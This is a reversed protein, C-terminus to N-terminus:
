ERLCEEVTARDPGPDDDWVIVANGKRYRNEDEGWADYSANIQEADEPDDGFALNLIKENITV